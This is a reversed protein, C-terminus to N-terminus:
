VSYQQVQAYEITQFCLIVFQVVVAISLFFMFAYFVIPIYQPVYFWFTNIGPMFWNNVFNCIYDVAYGGYLTMLMLVFTIICTECIGMTIAGLAVAGSETRIETIWYNIGLGLLFIIPEARFVMVELEFVDYRMQSATTLISFLQTAIHTVLDLGFGTVLLLFGALLFGMVLAMLGGAAEERDFHKM